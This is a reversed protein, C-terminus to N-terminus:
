EGADVVRPPGAGAGDADTRGDYVGPACLARPGDEGGAVSGPPCVAGGGPEAHGALATGSARLRDLLDANLSIGVHESRQTALGEELREMNMGDKVMPLVYKLLRRAEAPTIAEFDQMAKDLLKMGQEQLTIAAKARASAREAQRAEQPSLSRPADPPRLGFAFAPAVTKVPEPPVEAVEVVEVVPAAAAREKDERRLREDWRSRWCLIDDRECQCHINLNLLAYLRDIDREASDRYILFYVDAMAESLM